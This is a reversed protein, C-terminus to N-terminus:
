ALRREAIDIKSRSLAVRARANSHQLRAAGQENLAVHRQTAGDSAKGGIEAFGYGFDLRLDACSQVGAYSDHRGQRPRDPHELLAPERVFLQLRGTASKSSGSKGGSPGLTIPSAAANVKTTAVAEGEGSSRNGVSSSPDPAALARSPIAGM